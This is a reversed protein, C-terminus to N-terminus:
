LVMWPLAMNFGGLLNPPSIPYVSQTITNVLIIPVSLCVSPCVSLRLHRCYGKLRLPRPNFVKWIIVHKVSIMYGWEPEQFTLCFFGMKLLAFTSYIIFLDNLSRCCEKAGLDTFSYGMRPGFPQFNYSNWMSRISPPGIQWAGHPLTLVVTCGVGYGVWVGKMGLSIVRRNWPYLLKFIKGQFDLTWTMPSTLNSLWM